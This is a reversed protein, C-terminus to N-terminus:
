SIRGHLWSSYRRTPSKDLEESSLPLSQPSLYLSARDSRSLPPLNTGRLQNIYPFNKTMSPHPTLPSSPHLFSKISEPTSKVPQTSAALLHKSRISSLLKSPPEKFENKKIFTPTPPQPTNVVPVPSQPPIPRTKIPTNFILSSESDNFEENVQCLSSM